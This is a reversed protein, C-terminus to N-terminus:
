SAAIRACWAKHSSTGKRRALMAVGLALAAVASGLHLGVVFSM